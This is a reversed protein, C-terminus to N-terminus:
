PSLDGDSDLIIFIAGSGGMEIAALQVASEVGRDKLLSGRPQRIPRVVEIPVALNLEAIMRRLLIPVASVEGHGEVIPAIQFAM